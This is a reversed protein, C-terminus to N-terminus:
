SKVKKKSSDGGDDERLGLLRLDRMLTKGLRAQRTTHSGDFGPCRCNHRVWRRGGVSTHPAHQGAHASPLRDGLLLSSAAEGYFADACGISVAVSKESVTSGHETLEQEEVGRNLTQGKDRHKSPKSNM